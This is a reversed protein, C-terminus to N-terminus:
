GRSSLNSRPKKLSRYAELIDFGCRICNISALRPEGDEVSVRKEYVTNGCTPCSRITERAATVEPDITM